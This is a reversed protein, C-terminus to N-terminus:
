ISKESIDEQRDAKYKELLECIEEIDGTEAIGQILEICQQYVRKEQEPLRKLFQDEPIVSGDNEKEIHTVM